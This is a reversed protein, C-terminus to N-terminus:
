PSSSFIHRLSRINFFYKDYYGRADTQVTKMDQLFQNQKSMIDKQWATLSSKDKLMELRDAENLNGQRQRYRDAWKTIYQNLVVAQDQANKTSVATIPDLQMMKEMWDRDAIGKKYQRDERILREQRADELSRDFQTLEPFKLAAERGKDYWNTDGLTIM